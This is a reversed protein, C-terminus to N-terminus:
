PADEDDGIVGWEWVRALHDYEGGWKGMFQPTAWSLYPTERRDFAEVRRQLGQFAREALDASAPPRSREEERGPIRGGSVRVYALEGPTVLGVDAFGGRSLIAATLTLQPAFGSDVQKQSPPSGTKFDLVDAVGGRVEIRDAKASVAFAGGPAAFSTRGSQEILLLASDRRLREFRIVWPSVNRALATERALRPRPIGAEVLCEMLIAEFRAEAGALLPGPHERAFREFAAHIATGRAMAEVPEGPRDIRRLRLIYRAYIAYPDRVWTEIRTVALERPRLEVPPRPAPRSAPAFTEGADLARAYALIEPRGPLALGAGKVLTELRWLWRSAV